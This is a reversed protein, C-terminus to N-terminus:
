LEELKLAPRMPNLQLLENDRVHIFLYGDYNYVKIEIPIDVGIDQKMNESLLMTIEGINNALVFLDTRTIGEQQIHQSYEQNFIYSIIISDKGKQMCIDIYENSNLRVNHLIYDYARDLNSMEEETLESDEKKEVYDKNNTLLNLISQESLSNIIYTYINVSVSKDKDFLFKSSVSGIISLLILIISTKPKHTEIFKKLKQKSM